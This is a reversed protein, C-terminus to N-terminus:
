DTKLTKDHNNGTIKAAPDDKLLQILNKIQGNSDCLRILAWAARSWDIDNQVEFNLKIDTQDLQINITSTQDTQDQKEKEPKDRKRISAAAALIGGTNFPLM